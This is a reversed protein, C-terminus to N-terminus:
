IEGFGSPLPLDRVKGLLPMAMYWWSCWLFWAIFV